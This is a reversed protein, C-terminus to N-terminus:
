RELAERVADYLHGGLEYFTMLDEARTRRGAVRVRVVAEEM